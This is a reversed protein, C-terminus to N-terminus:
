PAQRGAEPTTLEKQGSAPTSSWLGRVLGAYKEGRGELVFRRSTEGTIAITIRLYEAPLCVEVRDAWEVFCVGNGEFYEHVGLDAFDGAARLRYADFHYIPLRADYEQILVFTPSSVARADRIGLGEAVARVLHTKGAGLPGVLAVVAGPFLLAALRHGFATTAALDPIDLAFSEAM